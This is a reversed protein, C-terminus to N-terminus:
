STESVLMSKSYWISRPSFANGHQSAIGQSNDFINYGPKYSDFFVIYAFISFVYMILIFLLFTYLIYKKPQWVSKVVNLLVPFRILVEFLHFAFFFPHILTGFVAAAGYCLYYLVFFDTLLFWATRLLRIVYNIM